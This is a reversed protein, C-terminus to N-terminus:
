SCTPRQVNCTDPTHGLSVFVDGRKDRLKAPLVALICTCARRPRTGTGGRGSEVGKLLCVMDQPKLQKLQRGVHDTFPAPGELMPVEGEMCPAKVHMFTDKLRPVCGM